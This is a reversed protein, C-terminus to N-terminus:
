AYPESSLVTDPAVIGALSVNKQLLERHEWDFVKYDVFRYLDRNQIREFDETGGLRGTLFRPLKPARSSFIVLHFTATLSIPKQRPRSVSFLEEVYEPGSFDLSMCLYCYLYEEQDEVSSFAYPPNWPYPMFRSNYPDGNISGLIASTYSSIENLIVILQDAIDDLNAHPRATSYLISLCAAANMWSFIGCAM